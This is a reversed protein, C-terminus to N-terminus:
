FNNGHGGKGRRGQKMGQRYAQLKDLEIRQDPTLLARIENRLVRRDLMLELALDAKAQNLTKLQAPPTDPNQMAARFAKHAETAAQAKAKTAEMHRAQIAQIQTKQSETLKLQDAMHGMLFAQRSGDGKGPHSYPQAALPLIGLGLVLAWRTFHMIM